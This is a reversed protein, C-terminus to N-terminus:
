APALALIALHPTRELTGAVRARSRRGQVEIAIVTGAAPADDPACLLRAPLRLPKVPAVYLGEAAGRPGQFRAAARRGAVRELGVGPREAAGLRRVWRAVALGARWPAGEAEQEVVAVLEGAEPPEVGEQDPVVLLGRASDNLVRWTDLPVAAEDESELSLVSMGLRQGAVLEALREPSLGELTLAAALGRAVLVPRDVARRADGRREGPRLHGLVRQALARAGAGTDPAQLLAELAAHVPALDLCQPAGDPRAATAVAPPSDAAPDLALGPRGDRCPSPLIRAQAAAPALLELLALQEEDALRYPDAAAALLWLRYLAGLASAPPAPAATPPALAEAGGRAAHAHLQHLELWTFPPPDSRARWAAALLWGTHELARFWAADVVPDGAGPRAGARHAERVIHKYGVAQAQCLTVLRARAEVRAQPALPLRRLAPTALGELVALVAPRYAELLALRLRPELPERNLPELAELLADLCAVPNLVPLEAVWRRVRREDREVAPNRSARLEPVQLPLSHDDTPM